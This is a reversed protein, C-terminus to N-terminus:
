DCMKLSYYRHGKHRVRASPKSFFEFTGTTYDCTEDETPRGDQPAVLGFQSEKEGGEARLLPVVGLV